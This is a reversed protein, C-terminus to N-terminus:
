LYYKSSVVLQDVDLEFDFFELFEDRWNEISESSALAYGAPDLWIVAGDSQIPIM